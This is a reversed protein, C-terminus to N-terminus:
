RCNAFVCTFCIEPALCGKQALRLHFLIVEYNQRVFLTYAILFLMDKSPHNM